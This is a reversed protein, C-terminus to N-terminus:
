FEVGCATIGGVVGKRFAAIKEFGSGIVNDNSGHDGIVIAVQIAEDLDGASITVTASDRITNGTVGGPAPIITKAWGGVLCDTILARDEGSTTSGVARLAAEAWASGFQYGITFDGFQDYLDRAQAGDYAVTGEAPCYVAGYELEGAPDPCVGTMDGTVPTITLTGFRESPDTITENWFTNLDVPLFTLIGDTSDDFPSNGGQAQDNANNFVNPMLPLPNDILDRCGELGNAYGTQFAGVRDFGSGHGNPDLQDIGPADRVGIVTLLASTIDDDTVTIGVVEGRTARAFWAGAFCDAQQETYITDIAGNFTGNRMQIAHGWEHSLMVGVAVNGSFSVINAIEGDPADDYTIFDGDGCYFAINQQVEEYTTETGGGCPPIPDARTPYAPLVGGALPEYPGGYLAPYEGTWWSQLDNIVLQIYNDWPEAPKNDGPKWAEDTPVNPDLTPGTQDGTGPTITPITSDPPPTSGTPPPTTGPALTPLPPPVVSLPQAEDTTVGPGAACGILGIALLTASVTARARM